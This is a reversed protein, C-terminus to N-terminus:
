GPRPVHDDVMRGNSILQDDRVRRTSARHRVPLTAVRAHQGSAVRGSSTPPLRHTLDWPAEPPEGPLAAREGRRRSCKFCRDARRQAPPCRSGAPDDGRRDRMHRPPASKRRACSREDGRGYGRDTCYSRCPPHLLPRHYRNRAAEPQARLVGQRIGAPRHLRATLRACIASSPPLLPSM